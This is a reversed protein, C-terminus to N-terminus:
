KCWTYAGPEVGSYSCTPEAVVVVVENDCDAVVVEVIIRVHVGRTLKIVICVLGCSIATIGTSVRVVVRNAALLNGGVTHM